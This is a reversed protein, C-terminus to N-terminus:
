PRNINAMRYERLSEPYNEVFNVMFQTVDIKDALLRDRRGRWEERLYRRQLLEVAKGMAQAQGTRPDSFCHILGYKEEEEKCYGVSLTNVYIAPTGLVACESAVTAGEGICLTAYYLLDHLKEPAVTIRYRELDTPLKRESTILVRGYKELEMVLHRPDVVGHQGVDHSASWSVFRVIIFRDDPTLGIEGLVSPDPVFRIPHLYALEHYGAYRVQKAGLNRLFCSPTCITKTFPAYLYYQDRQHETDDFAIHPKRLLWSVHAANPSGMSILIDPKFHRAVRYTSWDIRLMDIAKLVLGRRYSGMRVYELGYADLLRISVDKDKATILFEHGKKQMERVFHKFLHVHAPHGIDVLIRM